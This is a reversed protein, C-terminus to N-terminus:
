KRESILKKTTVVVANRSPIADPLAIALKDLLLKGMPRPKPITQCVARGLLSIEISCISALEAIGEELTIEVDHWLEQLQHVLLYGLMVVFVHARTRNAKRVYIGRMELLETKMTRFAREVFALDKYRSHIKKADATQESLDTKIAYCGDLRSAKEKEQPNIELIIERDLNKIHIWRDIKLSQAKSQIQNLAISVNAKRHDCLYQNKKETITKLKTLKSARSDEIEKARLPNRHLVYRLKQDTIEVLKEDFLSFQFVGEKILTEIQPKTIATIYHFDKVGLDNIQGQKIMGRDGVLTIEKVGFREALKKIQNNVTKPDLTNGEFVEIAIPNGEDDTILGIVIQKKGRKKDRNYGYAALENQQGEFYSSTVDYLYFNPKQNKYRANFLHSEIAAQRSALDDLASYLDNENFGDLELIDCANHRQALRVASLRSGQEIVTAMVLWLALKGLRTHGLASTLGSQKALQYLAWVAGVGLGQTTQIDTQVNVLKALKAKNKLALKLASIEEESCSSLNAITDHRVSGNVRYSNRLLVRRYTKGKRSYTSADVFM